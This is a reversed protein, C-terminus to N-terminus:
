SVTSNKRCHTNRLHHYEHHRRYSEVKCFSITACGELPGHRNASSRTRRIARYYSTLKACHQLDCNYSGAEVLAALTDEPMEMSVPNARSVM